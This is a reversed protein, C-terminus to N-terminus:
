SIFLSISQFSNIFAGTSTLYIISNLGIINYSLALESCRQYCCCCCCCSGIRHVTVSVDSGVACLSATSLFVKMKVYSLAM